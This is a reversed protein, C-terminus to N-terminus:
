GGSVPPIADVVAGDAVPADADVFTDDMAFRCYRLQDAIPPCAAAAAERVEGVTAGDVTLQAAGAAEKVGAYLRVTVSM